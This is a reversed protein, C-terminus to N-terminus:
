NQSKIRKTAIALKYGEISFSANKVRYFDTDPLKEHFRTDSFRPVHLTLGTLFFFFFLWEPPVFRILM